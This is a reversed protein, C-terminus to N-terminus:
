NGGLSAQQLGVQRPGLAALFDVLHRCLNNQLAKKISPDLSAFLADWMQIMPYPPSTVILDVSSDSVAHMHNSNEFIIKHSTQM